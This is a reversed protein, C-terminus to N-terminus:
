NSYGINYENSYRYLINVKAIAHTINNTTMIIRKFRPIENYKWKTYHPNYQKHDIYENSDRYQMINVKSIVHIINCTTMQNTKILIENCYKHKIYMVHPLNNQKSFRYIM